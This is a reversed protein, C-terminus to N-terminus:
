ESIKTKLRMIENKQYAQKLAIKYIKQESKIQNIIGDFLIILKSTNYKKLTLIYGFKNIFDNAVLEKTNFINKYLGFTKDLELKTYLKIEYELDLIIDFIQKAINRNMRNYTDKQDGTMLYYYITELNQLHSYRCNFPNLFYKHYVFEMVIIQGLTIINEEQNLIQNKM